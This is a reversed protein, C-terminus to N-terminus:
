ALLGADNGVNFTIWTGMGIAPIQEGTKPIAKKLISGTGPGQAFAPLVAAAGLGALSGVVTRRTLHHNPKRM